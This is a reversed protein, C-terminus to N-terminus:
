YFYVNDAPKHYIPLYWVAKIGILYDKRNSQDQAMLDYDWSRRSKTFGETFESEISFNVLNNSSHYEYGICQSLMMGNTLRDYGKIYDGDLQPLGDETWYYKIKHQLKIQQM